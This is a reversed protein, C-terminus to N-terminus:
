ERIMASSILAVTGIPPSYTFTGVGNATANLQDAGLTTGVPIAAPNPWTVSLAAPDVTLTHSTDAIASFNADGPYSYTVVHPSASAKLFHTDFGISFAGTSANISTGVTWSVGSISILVSGTPILSGATITGSLTATNTGYTVTPSTLGSFTPSVSLLTRQELQESIACVRTGRWAASLKERRSRGKISSKAVRAVRKLGSTIGVRM